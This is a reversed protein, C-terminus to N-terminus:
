WNFTLASLPWDIQQVRDALAQDENAYSVFVEHENAAPLTVM